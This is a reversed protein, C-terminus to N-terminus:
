KSFKDVIKKQCNNLYIIIELGRIIVDILFAFSILPLKKDRTTGRCVISMSIKAIPLRNYISYDDAKLRFDNVSTPSHQNQLRSISGIRNTFLRYSRTNKQRLNYVGTHLSKARM